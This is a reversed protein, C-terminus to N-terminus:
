DINDHLFSNDQRLETKKENKSDLIFSSIESKSSHSIDTLEINNRKYAPVDELSTLGSPTRLQMSITRLREERERAQVKMADSNIELNEITEIKNENQIQENEDLKLVIKQDQIQGQDKKINIDNDTSEAKFIEEQNNEERKIKNESICNELDLSNKNDINDITDSLDLVIKNNVFSEEEKLSQNKTFNDDEIENNIQDNLIENTENNIVSSELNFDNENELLSIQHGLEKESSLDNTEKSELNSNNIKEINQNLDIVTKKKPKKKEEFGTAIVTVSISLGLDPDIGIGEIINVNTGASQQIKNKIKALESMKIEGDGDGTVIKLLVQKAGTIDNDNLLPSDLAQVVAEIARNEGEVKAQGMVATGSNELVKRADNLDINVLLHQSIVEAIGKTATNLVENAKAFASTFTLDGYVEILKENDIVLLTDVYKKLELIGEDAYKRRFGGETAFPVTVVGVTLINKEKAIEAIIPAAGTGTGGGMGATIFLMKTNSDLLETIRDSSEEAARKGVDPNAGAGLGETLNIGLQIKTPVLSAELAQADTNCIVFDVGKIGNEFMYNVANSGGGGIGMVKIQSSQNKPMQFEMDLNIETM